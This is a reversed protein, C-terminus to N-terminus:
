SCSLASLEADLYKLEQFYIDPKNFEGIYKKILNDKTNELYEKTLSNIHEQFIDKLDEITDAKKNHHEYLSKM